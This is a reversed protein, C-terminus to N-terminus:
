LKVTDFVQKEPLLFCTGLRITPEPRSGILEPLWTILVDALSFACVYDRYAALFDLGVEDGSVYKPKASPVFDIMIYRFSIGAM